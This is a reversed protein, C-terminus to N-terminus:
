PTTTIQFVLYLLLLWTLRLTFPMFSLGVANGSAAFCSTQFSLTNHLHPISGLLEIFARAVRERYKKGMNKDCCKVNQMTIIQSIKNVMLNTVYPESYSLLFSNISQIAVERMLQPTQPWPQAKSKETDDTRPWCMYTKLLNYLSSKNLNRSMRWHDGVSCNWRGEKSNRTVLCVFTSCVGRRQVM